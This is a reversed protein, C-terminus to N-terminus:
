LLSQQTRYSPSASHHGTGRRRRMAEMVHAPMLPSMPDDGWEELIARADEVLEGAFVKAISAIVIVTSPNISGPLVKAEKGGFSELTRLIIQM